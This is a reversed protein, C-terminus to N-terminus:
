SSEKEWAARDPVSIPPLKGKGLENNLTPLDATLSRYKAQAAELLNQLLVTRDLQSETPRGGYSNVAGYLSGVKERLQQDADSPEGEMTPHTAVLTKRFTELGNAFRELSRALRSRGLKKARTRAQDRATITSDTVYALDGQMTYLKMLTTQRLTMDGASHQLRPDPALEIQGSYTKSGDLLKVTYAGAPVTPGAFAGGIIGSGAAVKPLKLRMNWLVRNIGRRNGAPLTSMLKGSSDYVEIKSEGILHRTKRYYTIVASDPPNDGVFQDDGTFEQVGAPIKLYAPRPKLFTVTSNLTEPTLQRLISIDDVVYFGRGHTALLLDSDRPQIAIDHVEVPPLNGTFQAWQKAGDVTLFLGFETGAFLLNPDKLDERIVKAYGSIGPAVVSTWTKGFDTTKYIYTKMDGTQHGDFTAYATAKDFHSPEIGSVWTGKPLNPINAVVNTWTRGGDRTVQVNGDDTGAWILNQDLPSPAITYITCYNEASSDDTTLGGSEVQHLDAPNNTTLDPSIREWSDGGDASKFLFQAGIYILKPNAPSPVIPTEWNFRLDPEGKKPYPRIWKMEDSNKYYKLAEGGEMECFIINNDTPDPFAYMGDGPGVNRWDANEVGAPGASPGYWSGNDQFGGYVNYPREMDFAVHYSQSIPLNQLFAWTAGRDHSVYVGGDTGLLLHDTNTPDIWIAHMDSHVNGGGFFPSTFSQGGDNSISLSLGPKYVRNPYKPDVALHSFYFPRVQINFSSNVEKWSAGADESRYLATDKSEVNAYVVKPDSPAVAVAIRGLEGTPLGRTLKEWSKGGDTSKYLGSGPGGSKFFYPWRRFQWMAAYIVNPDNPDMSLDACGTSPNVYLIKNWTKGGDTTKYLGRDASDNWLHGAVAVYVVNSDRSDVLIKAIRESDPLGMLQWDDGGDDTKYIGTGVSVTNRVDSEGTGVWVTDTHNPDIAIAGISQTYKDFVPKFTTGGDQSKWVGGNAAGVYVIRPEKPSAAIAEVRGGFVAPGIPRAHLAGFTYSDITVQARAPVALLLGAAAALAPAFLHRFNRSM